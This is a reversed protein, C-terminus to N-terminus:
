NEQFENQLITLVPVGLSCGAEVEGTRPKFDQTVVAQIFFFILIFFLIHPGATTAFAKLAPLGEPPLALGIESNLALRRLKWVALSSLSVRDRFDGGRGGSQLGPASQCM